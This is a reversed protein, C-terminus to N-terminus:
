YGPNQKLNPNVALQGNPIPFLLYKRDSSYDKEEFPFLFKNFRITDERRWGEWWLSYM